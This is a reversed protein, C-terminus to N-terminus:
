GRTGMVAEVWGHTGMPRTVRGVGHTPACGLGSRQNPPQIKYNPLSTCGLSTSSNPPSYIISKLYGCATGPSCKISTKRVCNTSTAQCEDLTSRAWWM